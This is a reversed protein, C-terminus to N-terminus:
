VDTIESITRPCCDVKEIAQIGKLAATTAYKVEDTSSFDRGNLQSKM